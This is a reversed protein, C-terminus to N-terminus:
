VRQRCRVVKEGSYDSAARRGHGKRKPKEESESALREARADQDSSAKPRDDDLKESEDVKERGESKRTQHRETRKGFIM